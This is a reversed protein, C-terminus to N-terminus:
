HAHRMGCYKGVGLGSCAKTLEGQCEKYPRDSGLCQAAATHVSAMREHEAVHKAGDKHEDPKSRLGCHTGVALGKCDVQLQKHCSERNANPVQLCKAAAAHALAIKQHKDRDEARHPDVTSQSRAGASFSLLMLAAAALRMKKM